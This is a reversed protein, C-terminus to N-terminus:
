ITFSEGCGCRAKELTNVFEFGENLGNKQYDVTIGELILNDKPDILISFGEYENQIDGENITDAYELKYAYGSCGTTEIGIRIGIGKGRNSLYSKLKDKAIDTVEMDTNIYACFFPSKV